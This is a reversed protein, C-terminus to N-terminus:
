MRRQERKENEHSKSEVAFFSFLYGNKQREIIKIINANGSFTQM